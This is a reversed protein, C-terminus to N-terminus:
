VDIELPLLNSGTLIDREKCWEIVTNALAAHHQKKRLIHKHEFIDQMINSLCKDIPLLKQDYKNTCRRKWIQWRAISIASNIITNIATDETTVGFCILDLSVIIDPKMLRLIHFIDGWIKHIDRCLFAMHEFDEVHNQCIKCVGDSLRM